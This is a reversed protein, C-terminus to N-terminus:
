VSLYPKGCMKDLSPSCRFILSEVCRTLVQVVGLSSAKWVAQWSKSLVSLYPKGCMKDLSPSCRFILSQVCRTLVQVVGFSLTCWMESLNISHEVMVSVDQHSRSLAWPSTLDSKGYITQWFFLFFLESMYVITQGAQIIILGINVKQTNPYQELM